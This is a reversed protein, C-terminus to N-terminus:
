PSTVAEIAAELYEDRGAVVGALTRTVPITPQIGVGHHPSGDHRRVRLSTWRVTFDGPIPFPNVNGNTGATPEGVIEALGFEEVPAMWLEALSITRGDVIWAMKGPITPANAPLVFGYSWWRRDVGEPRMSFAVEHRATPLTRDSIHFVLERARALDGREERLGALESVANAAVRVDGSREALQQARALYAAASDLLSERAMAAGINGLLAAMGASDPITAARSLAVRWTAIAARPGDRGYAAVGTLRVSDAWVKTLRRAPSWRTFRAAERALFDDQWAAQYAGALGWATLLRSAREASDGRVASALAVRFADRIGASSTTTAGGPARVESSGPQLGAAGPPSHPLPSSPSAPSVPSRGVPPTITFRAMESASWRDWGTRADVKWSYTQRPVLRVSDPIVATTDDQQIEFLVTGSADLLTARYSGAGDVRSWALVSADSVEGVPALLAPALTATLVQDRQTDPGAPPGRPSGVFVIVAAAAAVGLSILLPRGRRRETAPVRSVETAIGPDGLLVVLSALQERCARCGALHAISAKDTGGVEAIRAIEVQDLCDATTGVLAPDSLALRLLETAPIATVDPHYPPLGGFQEDSTM